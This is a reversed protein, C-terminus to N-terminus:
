NILQKQKNQLSNNLKIFVVDRITEIKEIDEKYHIVRTIPQLTWNGLLHKYVESTHSENLKGKEDIYIM